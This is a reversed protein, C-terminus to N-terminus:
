FCFSPPSSSVSFRRRACERARQLSHSRAARLRCFIRSLRWSISTFYGRKSLARGARTDTYTYDKKLVTTSVADAFILFVATLAFAASVAGLLVSITKLTKKKM